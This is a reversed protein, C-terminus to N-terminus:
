ASKSVFVFFGKRNYEEFCKQLKEDDGKRFLGYMTAGSGSMSSFAAGNEMLQEKIARLEDYKKFVIKEFDNEFLDSEGPQLLSRNFDKVSSLVPERKLGDPFNLNEYAWKTSIHLNPNIILINYDLKFDKLLTLEEGRGKALCPKMILFFPVDSGLSLAIDMIKERNEKIDIKFYNILYKLVSAANSSGGGMGGGVPIKKDMDIRIYFHEKILFAVFFKEIAKYCLNDRTLPLYFKNSHLKVSNHDKLSPKMTINIEDCLKVPYFITEINHFGDERKSLIRLGINIKGFSRVTM